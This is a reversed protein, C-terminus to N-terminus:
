CLLLILLKQTFTTLFTDTVTIALFWPMSTTTAHSIGRVLPDAMRNNINKPYIFSPNTIILMFYLFKPFKLLSVMDLNKVVM